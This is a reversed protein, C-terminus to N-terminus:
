EAFELNPIPRFNLLAQLLNLYPRSKYAELPLHYVDRSNSM